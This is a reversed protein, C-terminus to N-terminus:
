RAYPHHRLMTFARYIQELLVVRALEHPLTLRSLSVALHAKRRAAEPLGDAGGVLFAVEPTAGNEARQIMAAFGASDLQKGSPDLAVRYTRPREGFTAEDRIERMEFKCYRAIRRAYEAAMANAAPDRPRGVYFLSIKL